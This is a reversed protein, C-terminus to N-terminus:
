SDIVHYKMGDTFRPKYPINDIKVRHKGSYINKNIIQQKVMGGFVKM